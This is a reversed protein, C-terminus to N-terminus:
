RGMPRRAQPPPRRMRPPQLERGELVGDHNKDLDEFLSRMTTAFETFDVKGDRNWDILPSFGTHNVNYRRANEAQSEPLDLVGDGNRDALAFERKLGAELEDRTVIGNRNADYAMMLGINQVLDIPPQQLGTPRGGGCASVTMLVAFAAAVTRATSM